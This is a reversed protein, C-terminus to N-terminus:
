QIFTGDEKFLAKMEMEKREVEVLYFCETGQYIKDVDEIRYKPFKNAVSNKVVEPLDSKHLDFSYYILNGKEDYYAKYDTSKIEFEVKYINNANEWEIDQAKPFDTILKQQLIASPIVDKSLAAKYGAIMQAIQENSYIKSITPTPSSSCATISIGALFLLLCLHRKLFISKKM